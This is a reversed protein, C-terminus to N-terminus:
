QKYKDEEEVVVGEAKNQRKKKETHKKKTRKRKVKAPNFKM